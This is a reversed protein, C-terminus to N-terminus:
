LHATGGEPVVVPTYADRVSAEAIQGGHRGEAAEVQSPAALYRWAGLSRSILIRHTAHPTPLLMLGFLEQVASPGTPIGKHGANLHLPIKPNELARM